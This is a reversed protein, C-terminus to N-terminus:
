YRGSRFEVDRRFTWSGQQQSVGRYGLVGEVLALVITPSVAQVSYRGEPSMTLRDYMVGLGFASQHLTVEAFPPQPVTPM